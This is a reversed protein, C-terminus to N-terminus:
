APHPSGREARFQVYALRELWGGLGARRRWARLTVRTSGGGEEFQWREGGIVERRAALCLHQM